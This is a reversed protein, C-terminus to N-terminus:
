WPRPRARMGRSIRRSVVIRMVVTVSRVPPGAVPRAGAGEADNAPRRRGPSNRMLSPKRTAAPMVTMVVTPMRMASSIGDSLKKASTGTSSNRKPVRQAGRNASAENPTRGRTVAVNHVVTIASRTATGNPSPAAIRRASYALGRTRLISLGNSSIRAPM